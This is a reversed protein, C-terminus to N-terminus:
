KPALPVPALDSTTTRGSAVEVARPPPFVGRTALSPHSFALSYSGAPVAAIRYHGSEDSTASYQTGSLYVLAGALPAGASDRVVGSLTGWLAPGRLPVIAVVEGGDERLGSLEARFASEDRGVPRSRLQICGEGCRSNQPVVVGASRPELTVRTPMRISWRRVIWAGTPLAEFEIRGGAHEHARGPLEFRAYGYDLRRLERTERDVWLTGRVAPPGNEAVPRFALGVLAPEAPSEAIAFCYEDLFAESLLVDADPAYYTSEAFSRAVFGDELLQEVPVSAFPRATHLVRESEIASDPVVELTRPDLARSFSRVQFQYLAQRQAFSAAELAKRTEEWLAFTTRGVAPRVDCPNRATVSLGDLRTPVTTAVIEREVTQGHLLDFPRTLTSEYGVRQARLRYSGPAPAAILFAGGRDTLAGGVQRGEEDVLVVLAGIVPRSEGEVLRGRVTQAALAGPVLLLLLAVRALM